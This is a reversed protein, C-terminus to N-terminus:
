EVKQDIHDNGLVKNDVVDVPDATPADGEGVAVNACDAIGSQYYHVLVRVPSPFDSGL